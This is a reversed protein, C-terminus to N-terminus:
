VCRWIQRAIQMYCMGGSTEYLVVILPTVYTRKVFNEICGYGSGMRRQKYGGSVEGAYFVKNELPQSIKEYVVPPCGVPM